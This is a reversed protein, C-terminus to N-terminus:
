EGTECSYGLAFILNSPQTTSNHGASMCDFMEPIFGFLFFFDATKLATALESQSFDSQAVHKADVGNLQTKRERNVASM